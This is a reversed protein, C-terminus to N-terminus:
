LAADVAYSSVRTSGATGSVAEVVLQLSAGEGMATSGPTALQDAVEAPLEAAYVTPGYDETCAQDVPTTDDVDVYARILPGQRVSGETADTFTLTTPVQPCSGSGWLGLYLTAADGSRVVVAQASGQGPLDSPFATGAPLDKPAWTGSGAAPDRSESGSSFTVSYGQEDDIANEIPDIFIRLPVGLRDYAVTSSFADSAGEIVGHLDEVTRAFGELMAPAVVGSGDSTTATEDVVKGDKVSVTLTIGPCFCQQTITLQYEGASAASAAWATKAADLSDVPTRPSATGSPDGSGGPATETGCAALVLAAAALLV